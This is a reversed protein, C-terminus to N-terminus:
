GEVNQGVLERAAAAIEAPRQDHMCRFHGRPCAPYGIKSCPHCSLGEVEAHRISSAHAEPVFPYMGYPPATSGWVAVIPKRLAAAVHMLGTDTAIVSEAKALVACSVRLPLQNVLNILREGSAKAEVEAALEAVDPGGLLVIPQESHEIVKLILSAPMRKTFHTGAIVMATWPGSLDVRQKRGAAAIAEQASEREDAAIFYDLGEGDYRIGLPALAKFYRHVLHEQGFRNIGRRLLLKDINRKYYGVVPLGLALRLKHSRANCHLDIVLDYGESRLKGILDPQEYNLIVDVHPNGSLMQATGPRTLVHVEAGLQQKLARYVPTTVVMDGLATLRICLFKTPSTVASIYTSDGPRRSM